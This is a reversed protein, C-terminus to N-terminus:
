WDGGGFGLPERIAVKGNKEGDCVCGSREADLLIVVSKRIDEKQHASPRASRGLQHTRRRKTAIELGDSMKEKQGM